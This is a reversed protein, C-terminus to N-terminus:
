TNIKPETSPPLPKRLLWYQQAVTLLSMIFWYLTLGGPLKIGIILTMIPMVYMMQKNVMAAMDEDKAAPKGEVEAPPAKIAGPQQRMMMWSQWFQVAAALVALVYNPQTLDALGFLMAHVTGPNPVFSYLMSLSQSKLGVSLAQYLAIFVPLQIILPLCSAAPNVKEKRYLEMLEKAQAEKDNKLRQRVENIKPQLSQLARQQKIQSVTFPYLILKIIVTLVIIALGLDAGPLVGYLWILLNLIPRFLIENYLWM